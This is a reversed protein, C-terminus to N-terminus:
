NARGCMNKVPGKQTIRGFIRGTPLMARIPCHALTKISIEINSSIDLHVNLLTWKNNAEGASTWCQRWRSIRGRWGATRWSPRRMIWSELHPLHQVGCWMIITQLLWKFLRLTNAVYAHVCVHVWVSVLLHVGGRWHVIVHVHVCIMSMSVLM